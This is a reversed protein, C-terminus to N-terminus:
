LFLSRSLCSPGVFKLALVLRITRDAQIKREWVLHSAKSSAAIVASMDRLSAEEPTLLRGSSDAIHPPSMLQVRPLGKTVLDGEHFALTPYAMALEARCHLIADKLAGSVHAWFDINEPTDLFEKLRLEFPYSMSQLKPPDM